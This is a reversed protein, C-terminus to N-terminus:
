LRRAKDQYGRNRACDDSSAAARQETGCTCSHSHVQEMERAKRILDNVAESNSRYERELNVKRNLWNANPQTFSISQRSM